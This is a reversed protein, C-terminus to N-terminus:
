EQTSEAESSENSAAQAEAAKSAEISAEESARIELVDINHSPDSVTINETIEDLYEDMITSLLSSEIKLYWEPQNQAVYYFVYNGLSEVSIAEVDGAKRDASFLWDVLTDQLGSKCVGEVLGGEGLSYDSYKGDCLAIFAEETAGNAKWEEVMAAATDEKDTSTMMARVDVSPTEDRYRKVFTVVYYQHGTSDELVAQNNAKRSSDFLWDSIVSSLSSYKVGEKLTGESKNTALKANAIEKADSMAKEIEAESPEYEADADKEATEDVPDALETPETPLEAAVVQVYYDVCDYDNTHEAYYASIEDATPAKEDSVQTYYEGIYAMDKVFPTLRKLTAYPGYAQKLYSGVNTGAENAAKKVETEFDSVSKELDSAVFSAKEAEQKLAKNKKISEITMEDFYDKWTMTSSYAQTSIDASLDLGMYTLYTGYQNVYNNMLSYFNYDYEVKTLKEGGITVYTQHLTLYTRIPFSLVFCVLAVLVVVGFITGAKKERSERIKEQQRREMKRDYKTVVKDKTVNEENSM